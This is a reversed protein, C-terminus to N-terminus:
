QAFPTGLRECFPREIFPMRVWCAPCLAGAEDVAAKCALCCPPYALDAFGTLRFPILTLRGRLFPILTLRAAFGTLKESALPEAEDQYPEPMAEAECAAGCSPLLTSIHNAARWLATM